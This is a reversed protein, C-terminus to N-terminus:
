VHARGIQEWEYKDPCRSGCAVCPYSIEECGACSPVGNDPDIEIVLRSADVWDPHLYDCYLSM